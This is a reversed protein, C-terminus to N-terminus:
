PIMCGCHYEGGGGCVCVYVCLSVGGGGWVCVHLWALIRAYRGLNLGRGGASVPSQTQYLFWDDDAIM